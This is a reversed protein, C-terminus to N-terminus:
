PNVERKENMQRLRKADQLYTEILERERMAEVDDDDIDLFKSAGYGAGAGILPPALLAGYFAKNVGDRTLGGVADTLGGIVKGPIEAVAKVGPGLTSDYLSKIVGPGDGQKSMEAMDCALKETETMSLGLEACQQLFGVKFADRTTISM